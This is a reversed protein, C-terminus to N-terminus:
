NFLILTTSDEITNWTSEEPWGEIFSCISREKIGSVKVEDVKGNIDKKEKEEWERKAENVADLMRKKVTQEQEGM